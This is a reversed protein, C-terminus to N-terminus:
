YAKEDDVCFDVFGGRFGLALFRKVARLSMM